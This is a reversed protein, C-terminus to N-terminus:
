EFWSLEPCDPDDLPKQKTKEKNEGTTYGQGEEPKGCLSGSEWRAAAGLRVTIMLGPKQPQGGGPDGPVAAGDRGAPFGALRWERGTGVGGEVATEVFGDGRDLVPAVACKRRRRGDAIEKEPM